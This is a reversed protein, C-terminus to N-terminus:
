EKILLWLYTALTTASVTLAIESYLDYTRTKDYAAVITRPDASTEYRTYYKDAQHKFYFAAWGSVISTVALGERYWRRGSDKNSGRIVYAIGDTDDSTNMDIFYSESEEAIRINQDRYGKQKITLSKKSFENKSLLIPTTGLLSDQYFVSSGYPNSNIYFYYNPEINLTIHKNAEMNLIHQYSRINWSTNKSHYAYVTHEGPLLIFNQFSSDSIFTSDIFVSLNDHNIVDLYGVQAMAVISLYYTLSIKRLIALLM